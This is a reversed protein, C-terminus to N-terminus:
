VGSTLKIQIRFSARASQLDVAYDNEEIAGTWDMQSLREVWLTYARASTSVGELILRDQGEVRKSQLLLPEIELVTLSIDAPVSSGIDDVMKTMIFGQSQLLDQHEAIFSRYSVIRSAVSSSGAFEQQLEENKDSLNLFLMANILFILFVAAVIWKGFRNLFNRHMLELQQTRRPHTNRLNMGSWYTAAGAFCWVNEEKVGGTLLAPDTRAGQVRAVGSPKEGDREVRWGAVHTEAGELGTSLVTALIPALLVDIVIVDEPILDLVNAIVHQRVVAVVNASTGPLAQLFFDTASAQPIVKRLLEGEAAEEGEVIRSLIEPTDLSIVMPMEKRTELWTALQGSSDLTAEALIRIQGTPDKELVTAYMHWRSREAEQITVVILQNSLLYTELRERLKM